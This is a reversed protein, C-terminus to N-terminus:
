PESVRVFTTGQGTRTRTRRQVQGGNSNDAGSTNGEIVLFDPAATVWKEFIGIHDNVGDGEWDYCVLDGPQPEGVVKLGYRNARADGVVYPVYSYRVGKLFSPSDKGVDLAAQEFCWTCFIACWPVGNMGYWSGYKQNNSGSPSEVIGLQSIARQLAAVRVTQPEDPAPEHGGFMDFAQDILKAATADMCMEGAHAKGEPVRMSRLTDFTAKGIWGTDNIHQQRQVGAVGTDGVNGSTGHAFGNSYSDDFPQWDWRGARSVTRKYAEVDPGDVSKTKGYESADPPYLPRPFGKVKVMPGGDYPEDWWSM